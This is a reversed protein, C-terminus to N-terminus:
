YLPNNSYYGTFSTPTDEHSCDTFSTCADQSGQYSTPTAKAENGSRAKEGGERGPFSALTAQSHSTTQFSSYGSTTQSHPTAQLLRPILLLCGPFLTCAAPYGRYSTPTAPSHTALRHPTSILHLCCPPILCGLFSALAVFEEVLRQWDEDPWHLTIRHREACM